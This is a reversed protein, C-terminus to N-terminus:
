EYSNNNVSSYSEGSYQENKINFLITEQNKIIESLGELIAYVILVCFLSGALFGITLGWDQEGYMNKGYSYAGLLSGLVGLILEIMALIHLLKKM